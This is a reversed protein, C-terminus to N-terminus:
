SDLNSTWGILENSLESKSYALVYIKKKTQPNVLYVGSWQKSVQLIEGTKINKIKQRQKLDKVQM